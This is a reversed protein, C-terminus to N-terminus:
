KKETIEIGVQKADNGLIALARLTKPSEFVLNSGRLFGDYEKSEASDVVILWKHGHQAWYAIRASDPSFIPGIETSIDEIDVVQPAARLAAYGLHDWDRQVFGSKGLADYEKGEAGDVVVTWHRGRKAVHAIRKSNPSFVIDSSFDFEKGEVGDAVVVCNHGRTAVYAVRRSDPSFVVGYGGDYKKGATGDVVLSWDRGHNAVYAVRKSDPSFALDCIGECAAEEVGDVVAFWNNGQQAAYALHKGDPSFVLSNAGIGDYPRSMAGDLVVLWDDDRRAICALHKLDRSTRVTGPVIDIEADGLSVETTILKINAADEAHAGCILVFLLTLSISYNVIRTRTEARLPIPAHV